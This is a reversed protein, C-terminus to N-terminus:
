RSREDPLSQDRAAVLRQMEEEDAAFDFLWTTKMLALGSRLRESPRLLVVRGNATVSMQAVNVLAGFGSSDALEVNTLDLVVVARPDAMLRTVADRLERLNQSFVMDGGLRLIPIGAIADVSIRFPKAM